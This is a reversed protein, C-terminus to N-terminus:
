SRSVFSGETHHFYQKEEKKEVISGDDLFKKTWVTQKEFSDRREKAFPVM